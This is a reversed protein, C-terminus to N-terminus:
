LESGAPVQEILDTRAWPESKRKRGKGLGRCVKYNQFFLCAYQCGGRRCGWVFADGVVERV